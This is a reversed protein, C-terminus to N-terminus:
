PIRGVDVWGGYVVKGNVLKQYPQPHSVAHHKLGFTEDGGFTCTGYVCEVKDMTEWKAKVAAPDFSNAAQIVKALVWLCNSTFCLAPMKKGAKDFLEDLVPPNGKAHPTTAMSILDNAADKGAIEGIDAASAATACVVPKMNGLARLGKTILGFAVPAGNVVLLADADKAGNVKAAIPSYDEMENPFAIANGVVTYGQSEVIKKTVPMLYPVAGDDPTAIVVKKVGPFEKKMAKLAGILHGLSSNYGLFGYPTTADMEGPQSTNYGSVHLIKNQEFTPSSGTGFFASPGVVFKVKHDFALKTAAATNGDLATKGDEGVLEINYKQGQVTIGGRENIMQAAAKLFREENADFVSYWGSLELLYGIKLTKASAAKQQASSLAPLLMAAAVLGVFVVLTFGKKGM